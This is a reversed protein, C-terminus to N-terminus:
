VMKAPDRLNFTYHCKVPTPLLDTTIRTYMDVTAKILPVALNQVEPKVHGLWGGLISALITNMAEQLLSPMWIMNFHRFLRPTVVMRGGGPPGCAAIFQCDAVNKWFLKKQDYFGHSDIVQRM